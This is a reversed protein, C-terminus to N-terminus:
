GKQRPNTLGRARFDAYLEDYTAFLRSMSNAQSNQAAAALGNDIRRLRESASDAIESLAAAFSEATPEVLWANDKDAYTLIGGSNPALIATGSAMAELGVNGFPERPNPHIF